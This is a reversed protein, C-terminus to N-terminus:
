LEDRKRATSAEGVSEAEEAWVWRSKEVVRDQWGEESKIRSVMDGEVARAAGPRAEIRRLWADTAPFGAAALSPIGLSLPHARVWTFSAQPTSPLGTRPAAPCPPTPFLTLAVFSFKGRGPGVLYDRGEGGALQQEYVGLLRKSEDIYRRAAYVDKVPAANLFHGAQGFMPGTGGHQFFVWSWMEAEDMDELFHLNYTSDYASALYLLIAGTEFVRVDGRSRDIVAPIRGNPNIERLFWEEKQENKSLDIPHEKWALAYTGVDALEELAVNIKLGSPTRASYLDIGSDSAPPGTAFTRRKPNPSSAMAAPALSSSLTHSALALLSLRARFAVLM